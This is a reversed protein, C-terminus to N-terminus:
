WLRTTAVELNIEVDGVGHITKNFGKQYVILSPFHALAVGSINSGSTLGCPHLMWHVRPLFSFLTATSAIM